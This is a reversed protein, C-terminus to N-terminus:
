LQHIGGWLGHGNGEARFANGAEARRLSAGGGRDGQGSDGADGAGGGDGEGYVLKMIFPSEQTINTSHMVFSLVSFFTIFAIILAFCGYFLANTIKTNTIIKNM